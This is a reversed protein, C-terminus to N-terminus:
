SLGVAQASAEWLAAAMAPNDTATNPKTLKRDVYYGGNVLESAPAGALWLLTDAGKEPSRLFFAVKYFFGIIGSDRGFRTRVVGPHYSFSLIEPWRRAAEAAFAINAQKSSGYATFARYPHNRSDLDAPDLRGGSHADSATTVVRGGALRERLLSTLLFPALHNGQMTLEFGDGTTVRSPNLAGANNALLDIRPYADALQGALERVATLSGFDCRYATVQAQAGAVARVNSVAEDLRQQDRGVLALRAGRRALGVAAAAGIGSSAGTVVATFEKVPVNEDAV